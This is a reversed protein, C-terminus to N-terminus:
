RVFRWRAEAPSYHTVNFGVKVKQREECRVRLRSGCRLQVVGCGGSVVSRPPPFRRRSCAGLRFEDGKTIDPDLESLCRSGSQGLGQKEIERSCAAPSRTWRGEGGRVGGGMRGSLM